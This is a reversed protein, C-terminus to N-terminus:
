TKIDSFPFMEDIRKTQCWTVDTVSSTFTTEYEIVPIRGQGKFGEAFVLRQEGGFFRVNGVVSVYEGLM